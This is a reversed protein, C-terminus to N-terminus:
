PWTPIPGPWRGSRTTMWRWSGPNSGRGRSGRGPWGVPGASPRSRGATSCASGPISRDSSGIRSRSGVPGSGPSPRRYRDPGRGVGDPGRGGHVPGSLGRGPPSGAGAADRPAVPGVGPRRVRLLGAVGGAGGGDLARGPDGAGAHVGERGRGDRGPRVLGVGGVPRVRQAPLPRQDVNRFEAYLDLVRAPLPWGLALHCGLEASAFYAVFLVDPGIPYPPMGVAGSITKGSGSPGARDSSGPWWVFPTPGNAQRLRSSSISWGFRGTPTWARGPPM